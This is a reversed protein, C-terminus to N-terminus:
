GYAALGALGCVISRVLHLFIEEIPSFNDVTVNLTAQSQNGAQDFATARLTHSGSLGRVDWVYNFPASNDTAVVQGDVLLDVRTVGVNDTANASFVVIGSVINSGTPYPIAVSPPTVDVTPQPDNECVGGFDTTWYYGYTSNPVYVRSVGIACYTGNRMNADHGPSARWADYAAQATQYGAALNEGLSTNYTYGAARIRDWPTRGDLSNHAFYNNVGMDYSHGYSANSLKQNM